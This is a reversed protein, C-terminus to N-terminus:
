SDLSEKRKLEIQQSAVSQKSGASRTTENNGKLDNSDKSNRNIDADSILKRSSSQGPSEVLGFNHHQSTSHTLPSGQPAAEAEDKDQEEM